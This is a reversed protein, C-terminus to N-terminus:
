RGGQTGDIQKTNDQETVNKDMSIVCSYASVCMKVEHQGDGWLSSKTLESAGM